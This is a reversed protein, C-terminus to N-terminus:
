ILTILSFFVPRTRSFFGKNVFMNIFKLLTASWAQSPIRLIDKFGHIDHFMFIVQRLKEMCIERFTDFWKKITQSSAGTQETTTSYTLKLSFCYCIRMIQEPSARAGELITGKLMSEKAVKGSPHQARKSCLWLRKGAVEKMISCCEPCAVESKILKQDKLWASFAHHNSVLSGFDFVNTAMDTRSSTQHLIYLIIM